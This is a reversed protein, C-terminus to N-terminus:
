FDLLGKIVFGSRETLLAADGLLESHVTDKNMMLEKCFGEHLLAVIIM